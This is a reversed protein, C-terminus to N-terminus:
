LEHVHHPLGLFQAEGLDLHGGVAQHEGVVELEQLGGGLGAQVGYVQLEVSHVVISPMTELARLISLDLHLHHLVDALQLIGM